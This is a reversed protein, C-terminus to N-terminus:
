PRGDIRQPVCAAIFHRARAAWGGELVEEAPLRNGHLLLVLLAAGILAPMGSRQALCAGSLFAFALVGALGILLGLGVEAPSHAALMLRTLGIGLGVAIGALACTWRGGLRTRAGVLGALGGYVVSAAGAHGSPSRVALREPSFVPWLWGCAYGLVKLIALAGLVGVVAVTWAGAVRWRRQLCLVLGVLVAVPLIM